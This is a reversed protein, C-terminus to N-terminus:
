WLAQSAILAGNKNLRPKKMDVRMVRGLYARVVETYLARNISMADGAEGPVIQLSWGM